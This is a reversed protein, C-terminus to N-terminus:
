TEVSPGSSTLTHRRQGPHHGRHGGTVGVQAGPKRGPSAEVGHLHSLESADDEEKHRGILKHSYFTLFQDPTLPLIILKEMIM